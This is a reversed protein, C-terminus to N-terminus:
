AKDAYGNYRGYPPAAAAAAAAAEDSEDAVDGSETAEGDRKVVAGDECDDIGVMEGDEQGDTGDRDVVTGGCGDGGGGGGGGGVPTGVGM